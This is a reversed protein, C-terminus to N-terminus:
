KKKTKPQRNYPKQNTPKLSVGENNAKNQISSVSREMKLAIIRTPTNEEALKKLHAVEHSDWNKKQNKPTKSM